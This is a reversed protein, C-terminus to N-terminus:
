TSINSYLCSVRTRKFREEKPMRTPLPPDRLMNRGRREEDSGEEEESLEAEKQLRSSTTAAASAVWRGGNSASYFDFTGPTAPTASTM